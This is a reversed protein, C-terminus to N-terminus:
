SQPDNPIYTNSIETMYLLDDNARFDITYLESYLQLDDIILQHYEIRMQEDLVM